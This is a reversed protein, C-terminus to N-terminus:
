PQAYYGQLTRATLGGEAVRVEIRHYDNPREAPPPQYSIEYFTSADDFVKQLLPGLQNNGNLFLGGTQVAFVQAGLDGPYADSPKKLGKVFQEYYFTRGPSEGAGLPDIVYMTTNARRLADSFAVVEHFLRDQDKATYQVNPGSLLPWGPTVWVMLKHGPLTTMHSIMQNLTKLSLDLREEAGYFGASRRLERLGIEQKELVQSLANGDTTFGPLIQTGRDTFVALATPQALKGGNARLFQDIQQREYALRQFDLNVADLVITVSAVNPQGAVARFSQIPQPAGNDLVTFASQPIGPQPKGRDGHTVVVDLRIPGDNKAPAAAQQATVGLVPFLVACAALIKAVFM